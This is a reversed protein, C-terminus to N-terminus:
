ISSIGRLFELFLKTSNKDPHMLYEYDMKFYRDKITIFSQPFSDLIVKSKVKSAKIDFKESPDLEESILDIAYNESNAFVFFPCVPKLDDHNTDQEETIALVEGEKLKNYFVLVLYLEM